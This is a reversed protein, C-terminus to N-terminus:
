GQIAVTRGKDDTIIARYNSVAGYGLGIVAPDTTIKAVIDAAEQDTLDPRLDIILRRYNM